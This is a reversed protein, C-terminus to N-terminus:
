HYLRKFLCPLDDSVEFLESVHNRKLYTQIRVKSTM